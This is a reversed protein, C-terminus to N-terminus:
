PKAGPKGPKQAAPAPAQGKAPPQFSVNVTITFPIAKGAQQAPVFEWQKVAELAYPNLEAHPSSVVKEDAVKGDVGVTAAVTVTGPKDWLANPFQAHVGRVLRPPVPTNPNGSETAPGAPAPAAPRNCSALFMTCLLAVAIHCLKSSPM